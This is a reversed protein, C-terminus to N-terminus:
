GRGKTTTAVVIWLIVAVIIMPTLSETGECLALETCTM